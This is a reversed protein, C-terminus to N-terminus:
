IVPVYTFPLGLVGKLAQWHFAALERGMAVLWTGFPPDTAPSTYITLGVQQFLWTARLLHYGDSVVVATKWGHEDMVQRTYFANEETSRSRDELLIASEPIGAGVLIARCADAESRKVVGPTGGSCIITPSLGKKWLAAAQESRRILSPGPSNDLQVGAGLVVIVDAKQTHDIRGYVYIIIALLIIGIGWVLALRVILWRLRRATRSSWKKIFARM